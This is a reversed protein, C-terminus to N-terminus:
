LKFLNPVLIVYVAMELIIQMQPMFKSQHATLQSQDKDRRSFGHELEEGSCSQVMWKSLAHNKRGEPSALLLQQFALNLLSFYEILVNIKSKTVTEKDEKCVIVRECIRTQNVTFSKKMVHILFNRMNNAITEARFHLKSLEQLTFKSKTLLWHM